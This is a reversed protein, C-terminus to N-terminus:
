RVKEAYADIVRQLDEDSITTGVDFLHSGGRAGTVLGTLAGVYPLSKAVGRGIPNQVVRALGKGIASESEYGPFGLMTSGIASGAAGGFLTGLIGGGIGGTIRTATNAPASVDIGDALGPAALKYLVTDAIQSATKRM